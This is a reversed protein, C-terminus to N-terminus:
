EGLLGSRVGLSPPRPGLWINWFAEALDVGPITGRVQGEVEVLLGRKPIGTFSLSGGEPLDVMWGNLREVRDALLDMRGRANEEFSETWSDVLDERRVPRLFKMVVRKIGQSTM